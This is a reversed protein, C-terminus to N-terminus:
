KEHRDFFLRIDAKIFLVVEKECLVEIRSPSFKYNAWLQDDSLIWSTRYEALHSNTANGHSFTSLWHHGLVENIKEVEVGFVNDRSDLSKLLVAYDITRRSTHSPPVVFLHLLASAVLTALYHTKVLQFLSVFDVKAESASHSM